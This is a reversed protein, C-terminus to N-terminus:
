EKKSKLQFYSIGNRDVKKCKKRILKKFVDRQKDTKIYEAFRKTLDHPRVQGSDLFFRVFEEEKIVRPGAVDEVIESITKVAETTPIDPKPENKKEKEPKEEEEDELEEDLFGEEILANLEEQDIMDDEAQEEDNVEEDDSRDLNADVDDDEREEHAYEKIDDEVCDEFDDDRDVIRIIGTSIQNKVSEQRQKMETELEKIYEESMDKRRRYLEERSRMMERECEDADKEPLDKTVNFDDTVHSIVFKGPKPTLVIYDRKQGEDCQFTYSTGAGTTLRWDQQNPIPNPRKSQVEFDKKSKRQTTPDEIVKGGNPGPVVNPQWLYLPEKEKAMDWDM